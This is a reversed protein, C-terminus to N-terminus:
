GSGCRLRQIRAALHSTAHTWRGRNSRLCGHRLRPTRPAPVWAIHLISAMVTFAYAWSPAAEAKTCLSHFEVKDERCGPLGVSHTAKWFETLLDQSPHGGPGFIKLHHKHIM